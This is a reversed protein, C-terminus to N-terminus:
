VSDRWLDSSQVFNLDQLVKTCAERTQYNQVTCLIKTSERHVAASSGVFICDANFKWFKDKKQYMEPCEACKLM